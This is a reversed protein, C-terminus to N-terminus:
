NTPKKITANVVSYVRYWSGLSLLVMAVVIVTTSYKKLMERNSMVSIFVLVSAVILGIVYIDIVWGMM